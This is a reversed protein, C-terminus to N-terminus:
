NTATIECSHFTWVGVSDTEFRISHWYKHEALLFVQLHVTSESNYIFKETPPNGPAQIKFTRGGVSGVRCDLMFWQNIKAPMIWVIFATSSEDNDFSVYDKRGSVNKSNSFELAAKNDVYITQPNLTAYSQILGVRGLVGNSRLVENLSAQKESQTLPAPTSFRKVQQVESDPKEGGTGKFVIPKRDPTPTPKVQPNTRIIQASSRQCLGFLMLGGLFILALVCSQYKCYSSKFKSNM